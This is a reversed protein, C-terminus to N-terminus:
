LHSQDLAASARPLARKALESGPCAFNLRSLGLQLGAMGSMSKLVPGAERSRRCLSFGLLSLSSTQLDCLVNARHSESAQLSNGANRM